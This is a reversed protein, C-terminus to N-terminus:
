YFEVVDAPKRRRSKKPPPPTLTRLAEFAELAHQTIRWRARKKGPDRGVNLGKLQGTALWHLVTYQSVGYREQVQKVSLTM